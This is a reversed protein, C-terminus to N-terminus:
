DTFRHLIQLFASYLMFFPSLRFLIYCLEKEFSTIFVEGTPSTFHSL